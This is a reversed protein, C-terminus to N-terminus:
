AVKKKLERNTEGTKKDTDVGRMKERKRGGGRPGTRPDGASRAGAWNKWQREASRGSKVDASRAGAM